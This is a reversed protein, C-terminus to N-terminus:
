MLRITSIPACMLFKPTTLWCARLLRQRIPKWILYSSQPNGRYTARLFSRIASLILHSLQIALEPKYNFELVQRHQPDLKVIKLDGMDTEGARFLYYLNKDRYDYGVLRFKPEVSLEKTWVEALLTDVQTFEWIRDGQEYKEKDRLLALGQEELCVVHFDGFRRKQEKEYRNPQSVQAFGSLSVTMIVVSLLWRIKANRVPGNM